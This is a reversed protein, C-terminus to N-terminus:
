LHIIIDTAYIYAELYFFDLHYMFTFSKQHCQMMWGLQLISYIFIIDESRFRNIAEDMMMVWAHMDGKRGVVQDHM